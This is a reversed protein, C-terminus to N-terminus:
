SGRRPRASTKPPTPNHTVSGKAVALQKIHKLDRKAAGSSSGRWVTRGSEDISLKAGHVGFRSVTAASAKAGHVYGRRRGREDLIAIYRAPLEGPTIQKAKRPEPADHTVTRYSAM